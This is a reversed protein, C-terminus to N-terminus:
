KLVPMILVLHDPDIEGEEVPFARVAVDEGNFRFEVLESDMTNLAGEVYKAKLHIELPSPVLNQPECYMEEEALSRSAVDEGKITIGVDGEEPVTIVVTDDNGTYFGCRRVRDILEERQVRITVHEEDPIVSEYNPFTERILKTSFKGRGWNVRLAEEGATVMVMRGDEPLLRLLDKAAGEPIIGEWSASDPTRLRGMQHGDTAVVDRSPLNMYVGTMAPRLADDSVAFLASGILGHIAESNWEFTEPDSTFSPPEPFNEARWGTIKGEFKGESRFHVGVNGEPSEVEMRRDEKALMKATDYLRKAPVVVSGEEDVDVQDGRPSRSAYAEGNTASAALAMGEDSQLLIGGLIPPQDKTVLRRVDSVLDEIISARTSIKM